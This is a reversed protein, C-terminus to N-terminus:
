SIALAFVFSTRSDAPDGWAFGSLCTASGAGHRPYATFFEHGRESGAGGPQHALAATARRVATPYRPARTRVGAAPRLRQRSDELRVSDGRRQGQHADLHEDHLQHDAYQLIGAAAEPLQNKRHLE